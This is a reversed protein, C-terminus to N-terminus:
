NFTCEWGNNELVPTLLDITGFTTVMLEVDYIENVGTEKDHHYKFKWGFSVRRDTKLICRTSSVNISFLHNVNDTISPFNENFTDMMKLSATLPTIEEGEEFFLIDNFLPYTSKLENIAEKFTDVKKTYAKVEPKEHKQKQNNFKKNKM